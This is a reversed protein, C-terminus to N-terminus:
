FEVGISVEAVKAALLAYRLGERLGSQRGVFHLLQHAQCRVDEVVHRVYPIVSDMSEIQARTVVSDSQKIVQVRQV